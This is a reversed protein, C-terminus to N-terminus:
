KGEIFFKLESKTKIPSVPISRGRCSIVLCNLLDAEADDKPEPLNSDIAQSVAERIWMQGSRENLRTWACGDAEEV